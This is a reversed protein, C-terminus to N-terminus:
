MILLYAAILKNVFLQPFFLPPLVYKVLTNHYQSCTQDNFAAKTPIHALKQIEGSERMQEQDEKRYIPQVYYSPYQSM